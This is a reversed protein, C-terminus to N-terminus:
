RYLEIHPRALNLPKGVLYLPIKRELRQSPGLIPHEIADDMPGSHAGYPRERRLSITCVSYVSAIGAALGCGSTRIPQNLIVVFRSIEVQGTGSAYRPSRAMIPLAKACISTVRLANWVSATTLRRQLADNICHVTSESFENQRTAHFNGISPTIVRPALLRNLVVVRVRRRVLTICYSIQAPVLFQM